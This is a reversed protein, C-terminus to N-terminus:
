QEAVPWAVAGTSLQVLTDTIPYNDILWGSVDHACLGQVRMYRRFLSEASVLRPIDHLLCYAECVAAAGLERAAIDVHPDHEVYYRSVRPWKSGFGGTLADFDPQILQRMMATIRNFTRVAVHHPLRVTCLYVRAHMHFLPVSSISAVNADPENFTLGAFGLQGDLADNRKDCVNTSIRIISHPAM